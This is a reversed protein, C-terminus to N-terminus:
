VGCHIAWKDGGYLKIKPFGSKGIEYGKEQAYSGLYGLSHGSNVFFRKRIQVNGNYLELYPTPFAFLDHTHGEVYIHADYTMAMRKLFAMKTHTYRSGSHGHRSIAIYENKGLVFHHFATASLYPVKLYGAISKVPNLGTLRYIRDEHNGTRIGILRKKRALPTFLEILYDLQKQPSIGTFPDGKSGPIACEMWDGNGLVYVDDRGEAWRVYDELMEVDCTPHGYHFDGMPLLVLREGKYKTETVSIESTDLANDIDSGRFYDEDIVKHPMFHGYEDRPRSDKKKKVRKKYPLIRGLKDRPRSDKAM